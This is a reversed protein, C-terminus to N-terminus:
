TNGFDDCCTDTSSHRLYAGRVKEGGGSTGAGFTFQVSDAAGASGRSKATTTATSQPPRPPHIVAGAGWGAGVVTEATSPAASAGGGGGGTSAAAVPPAPPPQESVNVLDEAGEEIGVQPAVPPTPIRAEKEAVGARTSKSKFDM